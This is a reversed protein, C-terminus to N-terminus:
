LSYELDFDLEYDLQEYFEGSDYIDGLEKTDTNVGYRNNLHNALNLYDTDRLIDGEFNKQAEILAEITKM